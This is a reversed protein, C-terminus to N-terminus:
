GKFLNNYLRGIAPFNSSLFYRTKRLVFGYKLMLIFQSFKLRQKSAMTRMFLQNAENKQTMYESFKSYYQEYGLLSNPGASISGQEHSRHHFYSAGEIRKAIGYKLILRTWTDYDQRSKFSTDFGGIGQLRETLTFVQNTAYNYDLMDNLTIEREQADVMKSSKKTVWYFGHCLFAYKITFNDLFMQLRDPLFEDDDDLGTIYKGRALSIAKNRAHCAGLPKEHHITVVRSETQALSKLWEKTGDSSADDVVILEYEQFSQNLVSSIARKLLELRNHTPIYITVLPSLVM